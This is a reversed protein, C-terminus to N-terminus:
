VQLFLLQHPVKILVLLELEVAVQDPLLLRVQCLVVVLMVKRLLIDELMVQELQKIILVTEQAVVLVELVQLVLDLVVAVVQVQYQQFILILVVPEMQVLVPEELEV